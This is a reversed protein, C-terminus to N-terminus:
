NSRLFRTLVERRRCQLKRCSFVVESIGDAGITVVDYAYVRLFNYTSCYLSLMIPYFLNQLGVIILLLDRAGHSEMHIGRFESTILSFQQVHM